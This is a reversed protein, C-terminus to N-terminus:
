VQPAAIRDYRSDFYLLPRGSFVEAAEVLLFMVVHDGIELTTHPQCEFTALVDDIMPVGSPACHWAIGDFRSDCVGAFRSSVDKQSDNLVSVGLHRAELLVPLVSCKLDISVSIVPPDCSVSTFSNVTMGHPTGDPGAATVIAIGTAFKSSAKRLLECTILAPNSGLASSM